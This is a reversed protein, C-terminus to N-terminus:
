LCFKIPLSSLFVHIAGTLEEVRLSVSAFSVWEQNDDRRLLDNVFKIMPLGCHCYRIRFKSIFIM